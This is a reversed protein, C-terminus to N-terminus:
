NAKRNVEKGQVPTSRRGGGRAKWDILSCNNWNSVLIVLLHHQCDQRYIHWNILVIEKVMYWSFIWVWVFPFCTEAQLPVSPFWRLEGQLGVAVSCWEGLVPTCFSIPWTCGATSKNFCWSKLFGWLDWLSVTKWNIKLLNLFLSSFLQLWNQSNRMYKSKSDAINDWLIKKNKKPLQSAPSFGESM